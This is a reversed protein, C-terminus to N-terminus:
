EHEKYEIKFLKIPTYCCDPDWSKWAEVALSEESYDDACLTGDDTDISLICWTEAKAGHGKPESKPTRDTIIM